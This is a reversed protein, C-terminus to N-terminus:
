HGAYYVCVCVSACVSAINRTLSTQSERHDFVRVCAYVFRMRQWGRNYLAGFCTCSRRDRQATQMRDTRVQTAPKAGYHACISM